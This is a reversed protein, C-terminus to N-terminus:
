LPPAAGEAVRAFRGVGRMTPGTTVVGTGRLAAVTGATVLLGFLSLAVARPVPGEADGASAVPAAAAPAPVAAPLPWAAQPAPPAAEPLAPLVEPQPASVAAPPPQVQVAVGAEAPPPPAPAPDGPAPPGAPAPAPAPSSPAGSLTLATPGPPEFPANFPAAGEAPVLAVDFAGARLFGTPLQWTVVDEAVTAAVASSCDYAPAAGLDGGAAPEWARTTPCAVLDVTAPTAGDALTLVLTARTATGATVRLASLATPGAPGQRVLLGDDPVLGAGSVPLVGGVQWWGTVAPEAAAAPSVTFALLGGAVLLARTRM